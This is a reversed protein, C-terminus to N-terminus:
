KGGLDPLRITFGVYGLFLAPPHFIMGPNQLLPNLGQGDSPIYASRAFPPAVFVLVILFFLMVGALVACLYPMLSRNKKYNQLVTIASFVSLLWAWFLLSGEQGGWVASLAYLLSLSRNSHNAVYTIQFDHTAFAYTLAAVALTLLGALAFIAHMASRVLEDKERWVGIGASIITYAAVVFALLLTYNGIDAM